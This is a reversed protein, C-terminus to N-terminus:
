IRDTNGAFSSGKQFYSLYYPIGGFVMYSQVIDYRSM